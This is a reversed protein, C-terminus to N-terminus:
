RIQLKLSKYHSFASECRKCNAYELMYSEIYADTLNGNLWEELVAVDAHKSAASAKSPDELVHSLHRDRRKFWRAREAGTIEETEQKMHADTASASRLPTRLPSSFSAAGAAMAAHAKRPM